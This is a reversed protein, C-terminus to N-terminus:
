ASNKLMEKEVVIQLSLQTSVKSHPHNALPSPTFPQLRGCLACPGSGSPTATQVAAHARHARSRGGADEPGSPPSDSSEYDSSMAASRRFSPLPPLAGGEEEEDEDEEEDEEEEEQNSPSLSPTARM